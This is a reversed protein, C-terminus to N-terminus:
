EGVQEYGFNLSEIEFNIGAISIKFMITKSLAAMNFIYDVLTDSTQIVIDIWDSWTAGSDISYAVRVTGTLSNQFSMMLENIRATHKYDFLPFSKTIIECDISTGNDDGYSSDFEYVYGDKDGLVTMYKSGANIAELWRTSLAYTSNYTFGMAIADTWTLTSTKIYYGAATMQNALTWTSWGGARFDYVFCKDPFDNATPVFLLFLGEQDMSFSFSRDIKGRNLLSFLYKEIATSIDTINYGDFQYVADQGLFGLSTKINSCAGVCGTEIKRETFDLPNLVDGTFWFETVSREKLAFMKGAALGLATLKDEGSFCAYTNAAGTTWEEPKGTDSMALTYPYITGTAGDVYHALITHNVFDVTFKAKNSTGALDVANVAGTLKQPQDAGNTIVVIREVTADDIPTSMSHKDNDTNTWCLRIVYAVGVAITPPTTVTATAVSPWATVDYWASIDFTIAVDNGTATAAASITVQTGSDVTVITAGAPIGTGSVPIGAYLNATSPIDTIVASTDTTDGTTVISNVNMDNTGFKIKATNPWTTLWAGGGAVTATVGAVTVTGTAYSKTILEWLDAGQNYYYTDRSTTAILYANSTQIQRYYCLGTIRGSLPLNTGLAKYGFRRSLRGSKFLVNDAKTLLSNDIAKPSHDTDIGTFAPIVVYEM